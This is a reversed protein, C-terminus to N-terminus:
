KRWIQRRDINMRVPDLVKKLIPIEMSPLVSSTCHGIVYRRITWKRCTFFEHVEFYCCSLRTVFMPYHWSMVWNIFIAWLFCFFLQYSQTDLCPFANLNELLAIKQQLHSSIATDGVHYIAAFSMITIGQHPSWRLEGTNNSFRIPIYSWFYGNLISKQLKPYDVCCYHWYDCNSTCNSRWLWESNSVALQTKQKGYLNHFWGCFSRLTIQICQRIDDGNITNMATSLM